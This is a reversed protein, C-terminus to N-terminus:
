LGMNVLQQWLDRNQAVHIWDLGDFRTEKLILNLIIREDIGIYRLHDRRKLKSRIKNFM